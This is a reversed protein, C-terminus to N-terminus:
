RKRNNKFNKDELEKKETIDETHVLVLDPPIFGYKVSLYKREDVAQYENDMERFITKKEKLYTYLDEVIDPRDKYLDKAKIGLYNAMNGQTFEEAARNFDLLILDEDIFQWIYTPMPIGNFLEKIGERSKLLIKELRSM